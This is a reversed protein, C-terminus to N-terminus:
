MHMKSQFLQLHPFSVLLREQDASNDVADGIAYKKLSIDNLFVVSCGTSPNRKQHDNFYLSVKSCHMHFAKLTILLLNEKLTAVSTFKINM